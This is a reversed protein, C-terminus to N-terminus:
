RSSSTAASSRAVAAADGPGRQETRTLSGLFSSEGIIARKIGPPLPGNWGPPALLYSGGGDGDLSAAPATSCSAGCITGSARSTAAASREAAPDPGLARRASRGLCLFLPTDVNPTVIDTSARRRRCASTGWHGFGGVYSPSKADVAQRYMTRYYLVLPYAFVYADKAIARADAPSVKPARPAPSRCFSRRPPGARSRLAALAALSCHGDDIM